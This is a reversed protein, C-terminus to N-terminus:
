ENNNVEEFMEKFYIFNYVNIIDYLLFKNDNNEITVYDGKHVVYEKEMQSFRIEFIPSIEVSFTSINTCLLEYLLKVDKENNIQIAEVKDNKRRYLM